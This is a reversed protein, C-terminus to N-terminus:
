KGAKKLVAFFIYVSIAVVISQLTYLITGSLNFLNSIFRILFILVFLFFIKVVPSILVYVIDIFRANRM